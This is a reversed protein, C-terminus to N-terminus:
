MRTEEKKESCKGNLVYPDNKAENTSQTIKGVEFRWCVEELGTGFKEFRLNFRNFRLGFREFRM